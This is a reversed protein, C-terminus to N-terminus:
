KKEEDMQENMFQSAVGELERPDQEGERFIVFTWEQERESIFTLAKKLKVILENKDERTFANQFILYTEIRDADYDVHKFM